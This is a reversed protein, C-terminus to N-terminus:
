YQLLNAEDEGGELWQNSQSKSALWTRSNCSLSIPHYGFPYVQYPGFYMHLGPFIKHTVLGSSLLWKDVATIPIPSPLQQWPLSNKSVFYNSIHFNMAGCDIFSYTHIKCDMLQLTISIFFHNMSFPDNQPSDLFFIYQPYLHSILDITPIWLGTTSRIKSGTLGTTEQIFLNSTSTPIKINVQSKRFFSNCEQHPLWEQTLTSDRCGWYWM